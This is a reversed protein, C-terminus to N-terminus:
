HLLPSAERKRQLNQFSTYLFPNVCVHSFISASFPRKQVIKGREKVSNQKRPGQAETKYTPDVYLMDSFMLSNIGSFHFYWKPLKIDNSM